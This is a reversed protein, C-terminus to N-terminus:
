GIEPCPVSQLFKGWKVYYDAYKENISQELVVSRFDVWFKNIPNYKKDM